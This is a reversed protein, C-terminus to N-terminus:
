NINTIFEIELGHNNAWNYADEENEFTSEVRKGLSDSAIARIKHNPDIWENELM